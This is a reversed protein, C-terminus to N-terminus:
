EVEDFSNIIGKSVLVEKLKILDVGKDRPPQAPTPVFTKTTTTTKGTAVNVEVIKAMVM